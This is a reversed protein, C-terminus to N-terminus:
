TNVYAANKIADVDPFNPYDSYVSTQTIYTLYSFPVRKRCFGERGM